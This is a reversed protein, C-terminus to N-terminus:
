KILELYKVFTSKLNEIISYSNYNEPKIWLYSDHDKSLSVKDSDSRCEFFIGVIQWKETKVEPRWENVAVPRIIKVKLGTEEYVERLLSEDFKEGPKLRGGPVDYHGINTGDEYSNSERLLLIKENHVVLAKTAIFLKEPM